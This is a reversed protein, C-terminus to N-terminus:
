DVQRADIVTAIQPRPWDPLYGRIRPGHRVATGTARRVMHPGVAWVVILLSRDHQFYLTVISDGEGVTGMTSGNAQRLDFIEGTAFQWRGTPLEADTPTAFEEVAHRLQQARERIQKLGDDEEREKAELEATAQAVKDPDNKDLGRSIWGRAEDALGAEIAKKAINSAALSAGAEVAERLRAVGMVNLGLYDLSMGLNNLVAADGQLLQTLTMYHQVSLEFLGAASYQYALHFRLGTRSPDLEIAREFAGFSEPLRDLAELAYGKEEFARAQRAVSPTSQLVSEAIAIASDNERIARRLEAEYLLLDAREDAAVHEKRREIEEIAARTEGLDHLVKALAKVPRISNPFEDALTRFGDIATDDGAQFLLSLLSLRRDIREDRSDVEDTWDDLLRHVQRVDHSAAAMVAEQLRDGQPPKTADVTSIAASTASPSPAHVDPEVASTSETLAKRADKATQLLGQTERPGASELNALQTEATTRKTREKRLTRVLAIIAIVLAAFLAPLGYQPGAFAFTAAVGAIVVLPMIWVGNDKLVELTLGRWDSM